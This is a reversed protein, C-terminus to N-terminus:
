RRPYLREEPSNPPKKQGSCKMKSRSIQRMLLPDELSESKEVLYENLFTTDLNKRNHQRVSMQASQGASPQIVYCLVDFRGSGYPLGQTKTIPGVSFNSGDVELLM